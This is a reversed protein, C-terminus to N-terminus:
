RTTATTPRSPPRKTPAIAAAGVAPASTITGLGFTVVDPVVTLWNPATDHPPGAIHTATPLEVVDPAVLVSIWCHFPNDHDILAEGFGVPDGTARL